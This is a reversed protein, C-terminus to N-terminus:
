NEKAINSNSVIKKEAMEEDMTSSLKRQLNTALDKDQTQSCFCSILIVRIMYTVIKLVEIEAVSTLSDKAECNGYKSVISTMIQVLVQFGKNKIFQIIWNRKIEELGIM